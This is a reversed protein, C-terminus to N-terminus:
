ASGAFARILDRYTVRATFIEEQSTQLERSDTWIPHAVGGAVALGEYDGFQFDRAPSVTENSAVSAVRVPGRWRRGDSSVVCAYSASRRTRDGTTDYFCVWLRGNLRDFAATPWFQDSPDADDAPGIRVGGDANPNGLVPRLRSDFGSVFIQQSGNAEINGYVVYVGGGHADDVVVTPNPRVCRDPEAPIQAGLIDCTEELPLYSGVLRDSGFRVGDRARDIWIGQNGPDEWAIYV